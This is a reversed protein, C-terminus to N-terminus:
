PGIGTIDYLVAKSLLGVDHSLRYKTAHHTCSVLPMGSFVPAVIVASRANRVLGCRKNNIPSDPFRRRVM